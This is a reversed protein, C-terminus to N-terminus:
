KVFVHTYTVAWLSPIFARVLRLVHSFPCNLLIVHLGHSSSHTHSSLTSSHPSLSCALLSHTFSYRIFSRARSLSLPALRSLLQSEGSSSSSLHTWWGPSTGEKSSSSISSSNSSSISRSGDATNTHPRALASSSGPSAEQTFFQRILENAADKFSEQM